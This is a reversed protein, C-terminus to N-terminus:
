NSVYYKPRSYDFYLGKGVKEREKAEIADQKKNYVHEEIADLIDKNTYTEVIYQLMQEKKVKKNFRLKQKRGQYNELRDLMENIKEITLRLKFLNDITEKPIEKKVVPPPIEKKVVPPTIEQKLTPFDKLNKRKFFKKIIPIDRKPNNINFLNPILEPEEGEFLRNLLNNIEVVYGKIIESLYQPDDNSIKLAEEMIDKSSTNPNNLLLDMFFLSWIACFGNENEKKILGELYQFGKINPCIENPPIYKVNGIYKNLENEFLNKLQSNLKNNVEYGYYTFYQGHPEFREVENQLPRYILLNAHSGSKDNIVFNFTMYSIIIKQGENKCEKLKEGLAEIIEKRPKTDNVDNIKFGLLTGYISPSVIFCKEKFKDIIAYYGLQLPVSQSKYKLDKNEIGIQKLLELKDNINQINKKIDIKSGIPTPLKFKIIKKISKKKKITPTFKITQKIIPKEKEKEKEKKQKIEENVVLIDDDIFWEEGKKFKYYATKLGNKYQSLACGYTIHHKKAYEKIFDTWISM